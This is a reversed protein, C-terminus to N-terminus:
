APVQSQKAEAALFYMIKDGTMQVLKAKFCINVDYDGPLVKINETKLVIKYDKKQDGLVESYSEHTPKDVNQTSIRLKGGKAEFVIHPHSLVAAAKLTNKITIDTLRFTDDIFPLKKEMTEPPTIIDRIDCTVYNLSKNNESIHILQKDVKIVPNKFISIASFFKGLEYIGFEAELSQDVEAFAMIKRSIAITSLMTGPHFAMSPNISQFNKLVDM